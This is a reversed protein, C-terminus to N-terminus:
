IGGQGTLEIIDDDVGNFPVNNDADVIQASFAM